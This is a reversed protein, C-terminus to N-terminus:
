QNVLKRQSSEVLTQRFDQVLKVDVASTRAGRCVAGRVAVLDVIEVPLQDLEAQTVSGALVTMMSRLKAAEFLHKLEQPSLYNLVTGAQKGYTDVLLYRLGLSAALGLVEPPPPAEAQRWDAYVVGVLQKGASAVTTSASELLAQWDSLGACGSLGLKVVRIEEIELLGVSVSSKWDRLEGLAASLNRRGALAMAAERAVAVDVAALPGASPEKLDIWDAGGALAALVEPADRVSVLLKPVDISGQSM